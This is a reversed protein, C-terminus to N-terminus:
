RGAEGAGPRASLAETFARAYQDHPLRPWEAKLRQEALDVSALAVETRLKRELRSKEAEV